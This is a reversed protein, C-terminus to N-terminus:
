LVSHRRRFHHVVICLFDPIFSNVMVLYSLVLHQKCINYNFLTILKIYNLKNMQIYNSMNRIQEWPIEQCPTSNDAKFTRHLGQFM